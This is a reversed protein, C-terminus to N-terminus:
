YALWALVDALYNQQGKESVFPLNFNLDSFKQQYSWAWPKIRGFFGLCIRLNRAFNESKQFNWLNKFQTGKLFEPNFGASIKGAIPV